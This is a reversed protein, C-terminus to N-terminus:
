SKVWAEADQKSSFSAVQEGDLENDEFKVKWGNSM